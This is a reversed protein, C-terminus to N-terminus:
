LLLILPKILEAMKGEQAEKSKEAKEPNDLRLSSSSAYLYCDTKALIIATTLFDKFRYFRRIISSEL